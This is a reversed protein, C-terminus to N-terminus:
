VKLSKGCLLSKSKVVRTQLGGKVKIKWHKLHCLIFVEETYIFIWGITASLLPSGSLGYEGYQWKDRGGKTNVIVMMDHM